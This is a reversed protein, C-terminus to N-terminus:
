PALQELLPEVEPFVGLQFKCLDLELFRKVVEPDFHTGSRQVIHECVKDVTWAEHYRRKSILADWVDAVAFIRAGLPIEKGKLGQPYGTGDWREHHCYPIDLVPQLFSIGLLLERAYVPHKEMEKKEEATLPGKKLLISDPVGMKGIDHMLVGLKLFWQEKETLQFKQALEMTLACVRKTHGETEDDRLELARGWGEVTSEYANELEEHIQLIKQQSERIQCIAQRSINIVLFVFVAGGLFVVSVVYDAAFNIKLVQVILHLSYGLLFFIMFADIIGWKTQLAHPIM